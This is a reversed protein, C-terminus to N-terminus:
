GQDMLGIATEGEKCLMAIDDLEEYREERADNDAYLVLAGGISACLAVPARGIRLAGAVAAAAPIEDLGDYDIRTATEDLLQAIHEGEIKSFQPMVGAYGIVEFSTELRRLVIVREFYNLLARGLCRGVGTLATAEYVKEVADYLGLRELPPDRPPRTADPLSLASAVVQRVAPPAGSKTAPPPASPVVRKTLTAAGPAVTQPIAVPRARETESQAIARGSPSPRKTPYYRALADEIDTELAVLPLIQCRAEMALESTRPLIAGNAIALRLRPGTWGFPIVLLGRATQGKLRILASPDAQMLAERSCAPIGLQESLSVLLKGPELYGLEILCTGLLRGNSRQLRLADYLQPRTLVGNRVLILGLTEHTAM